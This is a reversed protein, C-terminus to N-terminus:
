GNDGVKVLNIVRKVGDTERALQEMRARAQENIVRGQITVVGNTTDVDINFPNIDGDAALKAKVKATITADDLKAEKDEQWPRLNMEPKELATIQEETSPPVKFYVTEGGKSVEYLGDRKGDELFRQYAQRYQADERVKRPTVTEKFSESFIAAVLKEGRKRSTQASGCWGVCEGNKIKCYAIQDEDCGYGGGPPKPCTCSMTEAHLAMASALLLLLGALFLGAVTQSSAVSKM